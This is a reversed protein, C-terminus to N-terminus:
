GTAAAGTRRPDPCAVLRGDEWSIADYSGMYEDYPGIRKLQMGRRELGATLEEPMGSEIALRCSGVGTFGFRPRKVSEEITMGFDLINVMNQLVCPLLSGSPSGSALVPKGDRFAINEAGDITIRAGPPTPTRTTWGASAPIAIGEHFLGNIWPDATCTHMLVAVNGFQDAATLHDTGVHPSEVGVRPGAMKLLAHRATAYEKSILTGTGDPAAGPDRQEAGRELVDQAILMLEFCLEESEAPAALDALDLLEVMNLAEIINIGGDPVGSTAIEYDRYTGTVAKSWVAEYSELDAMSLVGERRGLFECLGRAFEGRYFHDSGEEALRELTEAARRNRILRGPVLLTEGADYFIERGAASGGLQEAEKYMVGYLQPYVEVGERALEIATTMLTRRSKTGFRRSAAEFGAWWGPVAVGRGGLVSEADLRLPVGPARHGASLWWTEGASADHYVLKMMGAISTMQPEVVTQTIAAALVADCATGGDRLQMAGAETAIPHSSVILGSDSAVAAKRGQRAREM